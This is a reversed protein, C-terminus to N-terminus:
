STPATYLGLTTTAFITSRSSTMFLFVLPDKTSILSRAQYGQMQGEIINTAQRLAQISSMDHNEDLISFALEEVMKLYLALQEKREYDIDM